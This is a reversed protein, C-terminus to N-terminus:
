NDETKNQNQNLLIFLMLLQEKFTNKRKKPENILFKNQNRRNSKISKIKLCINKPNM